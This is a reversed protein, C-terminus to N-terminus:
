LDPRRIQLVFPYTGVTASVIVADGLAEVQPDIGEGV